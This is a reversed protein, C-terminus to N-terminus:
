QQVHQIQIAVSALAPILHVALGVMSAHRRVSLLQVRRTLIVLMVHVLTPLLVHQEMLAHLLAFLHRVPQIQIVQLVPALILPVALEVMKVLRRAFRLPVRPIQIAVTVHAHTLLRAIGEMKVIQLVFQSRVILSPGDQLVTALILHLVLQVM